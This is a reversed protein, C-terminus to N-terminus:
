ECNSTWSAICDMQETRENMAKNAAPVGSFLLVFFLVLVAVWIAVRSGTRRDREQDLRHRIKVERQVEREFDDDASIAWIIPVVPAAQVDSRQGACPCKRPHDEPLV